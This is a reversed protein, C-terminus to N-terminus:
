QMREKIFEDVGGDFVAAFGEEVLCDFIENAINAGDKVLADSDAGSQGRLLLALYAAEEPRLKVYLASWQGDIYGIDEVNM